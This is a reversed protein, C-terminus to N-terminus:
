FLFFIIYTDLDLYKLHLLNSIIDFSQDGILPCSNLSISTLSKLSAFPLFAEETFRILKRFSLSELKDLKLIDQTNEGQFYTDNLTIVLHKLQNYESINKFILRGSTFAGYLELGEMFAPKLEDFSSNEFKVHYPVTLSNLLRSCNQQTEM